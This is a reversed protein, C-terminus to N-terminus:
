SERVQLFSPIEFDKVNKRRKNLRYDCIVGVLEMEDRYTEKVLAKIRDSDVDKGDKMSQTLNMLENFRDTMAQIKQEFNIDNM